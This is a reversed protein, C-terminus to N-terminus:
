FRFSFLTVLSASLGASRLRKMTLAIGIWIFPLALAVMTALFAAEGDRVQTIRVVDRVPIWYNFAGWPRHFIFTAVIRDLNHKFAFGVVGVLAYASRSITGTSRWLESFTIRM